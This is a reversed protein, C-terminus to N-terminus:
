EDKDKNLLYRKIYFGVNNLFAEDTKLWHIILSKFADPNLRVDFLANSSDISETKSNNQKIPNKSQTKSIRKLFDNVESQDIKTLDDEELSEGTLKEITARVKLEKLEPEEDVDIKINSRKNNLIEKLKNDSM